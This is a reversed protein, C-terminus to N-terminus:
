NLGYQQLRLRIAAEEDLTGRIGIHQIGCGSDLQGIVTDLTDFDGDVVQIKKGAAHIKGYVEPWQDCEPNGAGPVWQVGDLNEITLLSDLHPLQGPGDLHYFVRSLRACTAELEPKAFEGFMEPSIM